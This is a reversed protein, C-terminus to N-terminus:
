IKSPLSNFRSFVLGAKELEIWTWELQWENDCVVPFLHRFLLLLLLLLLLLSLLLLIIIIIIIIIIILSM